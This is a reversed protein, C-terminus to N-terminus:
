FVGWIAVSALVATVFALAITAVAVRRTWRVLDQTERVLRENTESQIEAAEIMTRMALVKEVYDAYEHRVGPSGMEKIDFV